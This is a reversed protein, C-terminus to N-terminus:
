TPVLEKKLIEVRQKNLELKRENNEAQIMEDISPKNGIKDFSDFFAKAEPCINNKVSERLDNDVRRAERENREKSAQYEAEADGSQVSIDLDWGKKIASLAWGKLNRIKDSNDAKKLALELKEVILEKEEGTESCLKQVEPWTFTIDGNKQSHFEVAVTNNEKNNTEKFREKTTDSKSMTDIDSKSMATDTKSVAEINLDYIYGTKENGRQTIWGDEVLPKISSKLTNHSTIGTMKSLQSYSVKDTLKHWGITKRCIALFVKVSSGKYKYMKEIFSNAVQTHNPGKM